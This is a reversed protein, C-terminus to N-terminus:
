HTQGLPVVSMRPTHTRRGAVGFNWITGPVITQGCPVRSIWPRHMGIMRHVRRKESKRGRHRHQKRLRRYGVARVGHLEARRAVHAAISSVLGASRTRYM